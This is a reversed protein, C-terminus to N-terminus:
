AKPAATQAAAKCLDADKGCMDCNPTMTDTTTGRVTEIKGGCHSCTHKVGITTWEDYGKGLPGVHKATRLVTTKCAPCAMGNADAAPAAKSADTALKVPAPRNWFQPPPGAFSVSATFGFALALLSGLGFSKTIFRPTKM